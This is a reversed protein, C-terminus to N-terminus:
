ELCGSQNQGGVTLYNLLNKFDAFEYNSYSAALSWHTSLKISYPSLSFFWCNELLTLEKASLISMSRQFPSFAGNIWRPFDCFWRTSCSGRGLSDCSIVRTRPSAQVSGDWFPHEQWAESWEIHAVVSGVMSIVWSGLMSMFENRWWLFCLCCRAKFYFLVRCSLYWSQLFQLVAKKGKLKM